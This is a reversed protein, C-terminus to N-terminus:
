YKVLEIDNEKSWKSIHTIISTADEKKTQFAELNGREIGKSGKKYLYITIPTCIVIKQLSDKEITKSGIILKDKLIDLQHQKIKSKVHIIIMPLFIISYLIIYISSFSVFVKFGIFVGLGFLFIPMIYQFKTGHLFTVYYEKEQVNM